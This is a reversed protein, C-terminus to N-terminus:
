VMGAIKDLVIETKGRRAVIHRYVAHSLSAARHIPYPVYFAEGRKWEDTSSISLDSGFTVLSVLLGAEVAQKADEMFDPCSAFWFGSKLIHEALRPNIKELEAYFTM